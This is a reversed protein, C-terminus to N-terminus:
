RAWPMPAIPDFTSRLKVTASQESAAHIAVVLENVHLCFRASLRCARREEIARAMEVPGLCFDVNHQIARGRRRMEPDGRLAVRSRFPLEVSAKGFPVRRTLWVPSRPKWCDDTSIRGKDGFVQIRHDVPAVISCTLRAVVGSAYRIAAVSFDPAIRDLPVDTEKDPILCSSFATVSEAPGFFAALWTLSYGAHEFTCGTEMEDKYPFPAGSKSVWRRYRMKHLLGDDMEAYALRPTGIAGDRLLKWMTQATDGLVRSPAAALLLGKEEALLVLAEAEEYTLGLPKESYVHKGALLCARSVEFHSEPNTLNLVLSVSADSLLADLSGYDRLAYCACFARARAPDRDVVGALELEPHMPLTALYYDAVFGCGIIAVRM